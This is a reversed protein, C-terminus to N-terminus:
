EPRIRWALATGAALATATMAIHVVALAAVVEEPGNAELTFIRVPLPEGGPPYLPITTELDRLCFVLTLLWAAAIARAHIPILIRALRRAYGAGSVRAAEELHVPTQTMAVALVRSPIVAYRSMYGLIIILASGYVMQTGPRNWASILGVSLVTAPTVFALVTIADLLSAKGDRRAIGRGILFGTATLVCSAVGATVLSNGVSGGLWGAVSGFGDVRTARVALAGIPLLGLGVVFWCAATAPARWGQLPLPPAQRLRFGLLASPRRSVIRREMALFAASVILLPIALLFAEGPAYQVGGLRSFVAAPYVAVRLFMPVGLESVTLAFVVLSALAAAPWCIPLLIRTAVRWPGAVARAAEEISPDIGNVALAVFTTVIPMFAATLTTVVGIPSFLVWSTTEGGWFGTVGFANFWGLALLFPPLFMPFAHLGWAWHRGMVDTRGLLLGLPIGGALCLASVAAALLISALFLEGIRSLGAVSESSVVPTAIGKWAMMLMPLVAAIFVVLGAACLALTEENRRITATLTRGM